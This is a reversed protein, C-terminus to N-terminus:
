WQRRAGRCAQWQRRALNMAIERAPADGQVEVLGARQEGAVHGSLLLAVDDEAGEVVVSSLGALGESPEGVYVDVGHAEAVALRQQSLVGLLQAVGGYRILDGVRKASSGVARGPLNDAPGPV